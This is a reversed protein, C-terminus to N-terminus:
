TRLQKQPKQTGLPGLVYGFVDFYYRNQIMNLKLVVQVFLQSMSGYGAGSDNSDSMGSASKPHPWWPRRGSGPFRISPRQASISSDNTVMNQHCFGPCFLNRLTATEVSHKNVHFVGPLNSDCFKPPETWGILLYKVLLAPPSTHQKNQPTMKVNKM